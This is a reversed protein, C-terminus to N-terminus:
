SAINQRTDADNNSKASTKGSLVAERTLYQATQRDIWRGWRTRRLKVNSSPENMQDPAKAPKSSWFRKSISSLAEMMAIIWDTSRILAIETRSDGGGYIPVRKGLKSAGDRILFTSLQPRASFMQLPFALSGLTPLFGMVLAEGHPIQDHRTSWWNVLTVITRLAPTFVLPLLFWLNGSAMFAAVGGFKAPLILPGLAKLGLHMGFGRTYARVENGSLDARLAEAEAHSIRGAQEWREISGEVRKQGFFSQYRPSSLLLLFSVALDRRQDSDSLFRHLGVPTIKRLVAHLLFRTRTMRPQSRIRGAQVWNQQHRDILSQWREDRLQRSGFCLKLEHRYERNGLFRSCFRGAFSPLLGAYWILRKQIHKGSIIKRTEPDVIGNQEWSRLCEQQYAHIGARRMLRWPRRFFALESEKWRHTHEVLWHVDKGFREVAEPGIRFLLEKHHVECWQRLKDADLDDFPPLEARKFGGLLYHPVLVAPIGSELDIITYREGVRLLNATSVLARPAVQWGSGVLGCEDLMAELEHMTSVLTDIEATQSQEKQQKSRFFSFRRWVSKSDAPAPKIGRGQIWEAALVWARSDEDFRVYLPKAIRADINSNALVASAVRRRYFSALIADRNNQYAFPAQFSLRYIVRTLLGPAFVKEVCRIKEGYPMLVEVLQARAARGHGLTRLVKVDLPVVTPADDANNVPEPQTTM